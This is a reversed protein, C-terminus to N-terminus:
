LKPEVVRGVFLIAGTPNDRIVFLFPRDFRVTRPQDPMEGPPMEVVTAAAAETGAEDIEIFAKHFVEGIVLYKRGDIGSFDAAMGFADHMGLQGLTEKLMFGSEVKFKPLSLSVEDAALGGILRQLAAPDLAAEAQELGASPLMLVMSLEGGDYPLEVAQWGEADAYRFHSTRAMMEAPQKTGDLRTFDGRSTASKEFARAWAANFYIANTLVLKTESDIAGAPILDKIRDETKAQVWDNIAKRSPEAQDAFNMLQMGAGYNEALLDLFAPLFGYGRQGWLANAVNLRFKGGDKGAAGQGRSALALDLANFAPHLASQGLGYHLVKAMEAETSTRAGAYTMALAISISHPSYFVNGGKARLAQFLEVAFAANDDTLRTLDQASVAPSTVRLKESKAVELDLPQSNTPEEGCGVLLLAWAALLIFYRFM